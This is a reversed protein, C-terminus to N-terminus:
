SRARAARSRRSSRPLWGHAFADGLPVTGDGPRAGRPAPQAREGLRSLLDRAGHRGPVGPGAGDAPHSRGANRRIHEWLTPPAGLNPEYFTRGKQDTIQESNGDEALIIITGLAFLALVEWFPTRPERCLASYPVPYMRGGTWDSGTWLDEKGDEYGHLYRFGNSRPDIEIICRRDLDNSQDKVPVNPDAIKIVWRSPNSSDWAYPRVVHGGVKFTGHTVVM